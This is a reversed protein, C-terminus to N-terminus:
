RPVENWLRDDVESEAWISLGAAELAARNQPTDIVHKDTWSDGLGGVVRESQLRARLEDHGNFRLCNGEISWAGFTDPFYYRDSKILAKRLVGKPDVKTIRGNKRNSWVMHGNANIVELVARQSMGALKAVESVTAYDKFALIERITTLVPRLRTQEDTM